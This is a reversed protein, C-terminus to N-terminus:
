SGDEKDLRGGSTVHSILWRKVIGKNTVLLLICFSTYTLKNMTLSPILESKGIMESHVFDRSSRRAM